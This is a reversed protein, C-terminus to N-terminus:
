PRANNMSEGAWPRTANGTGQILQRFRLLDFPLIVGNRDTDIYDELIGCPPQWNGQVAQRFRLTRLGYDGRAIVEAELEGEGFVVVEGARMKRGPRVLAEWTHEDKLPRVLLM